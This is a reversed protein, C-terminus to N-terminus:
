DGTNGSADPGPITLLRRGDSTVVQFEAIRAASLATAGAVDVRGRYTVRWSGATSRQGDPGVAVLRCTTYRPVGSLRVSLSTGWVREALTVHGSVGSDPATASVRVTDGPTAPATVSPPSAQTEGGAMQAGTVYAGTMGGALGVVGAVAAAARLRRSRRRQRAVGGIVRDLMAPDATAPGDDIEEPSVRALLAPLGALRAVEDRCAVCEALHSEVEAREAPDIAGLVYVGLAHRIQACTM